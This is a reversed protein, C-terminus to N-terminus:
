SLPIRGYPAPSTKPNGQFISHFQSFDLLDNHFQVFDMFHGRAVGFVM